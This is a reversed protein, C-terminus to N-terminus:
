QEPFAFESDDVDVNVEVKEVVISAATQGGMKQEIAMAFYMGNVEQYDSFYTESAVGKMPGMVGITKTMLLVGTDKDFYHYSVNDEEKGEIMLPKKILKLVYCDTGEITEDAEKSISYGKEKYAILGDPFDAAQDKYIQNTQEDMKEAQMTMFNTQWGTEGDFAPQVINMGQFSFSVKMQGKNTNIMSGPLELGQAPVKVTVTMEQNKLASWAEKGGIVEYYNDIIEDPSQAFIATTAMLIFLLTKKM